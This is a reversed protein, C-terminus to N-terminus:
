LLGIDNHRMWQVCRANWCIMLVYIFGFYGIMAFCVLLVYIVGIYTFLGFWDWRMINIGIFCWFKLKMRGFWDYNCLCWGIYLISSRLWINAGNNSGVAVFLVREVIVLYMLGALAVSIVHTTICWWWHWQLSKSSTFFKSCYTTPSFDWLLYIYLLNM